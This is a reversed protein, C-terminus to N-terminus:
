QLVASRIQTLRQAVLAAIATLLHLDQPTFRGPEPHALTLVGLVREQDMLPASIASRSGAGDIEWPMLRWRPDDHTSPVLAAKRNEVVWGALGYRLIEVRQADPLSYVEGAYALAMLEVGGMDGLLMISGSSAGLRDRSLALLRELTDELSLVGELGSVLERVHELSALTQQRLAKTILHELMLHVDEVFEICHSPVHINHDVMGALLGGDFGTMGVTRVGMRRALEVAKIVNPSKGSASIAVVVDGAHAFSALQGSFVNEYGEDNALASFVPMNDSLGIVRYNPFGQMRTNKALDCVFHSATSASGGNGLIFVQRHELRAQALLDIVEQIAPQPLEDLLEQLGTIYGNIANM